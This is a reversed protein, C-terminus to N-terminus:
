SIDPVLHWCSELQFFFFILVTTCTPLAACTSLGTELERGGKLRWLSAKGAVQQSQDTSTSGQKWVELFVYILSLALSLLSSAHTHLHRPLAQIVIARLHVVATESSSPNLRLLRRHSKKRDQTRPPISPWMRSRSKRKRRRRRGSVDSSVTLVTFVVVSM